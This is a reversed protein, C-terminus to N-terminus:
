RAAKGSNTPLRKPTLITYQSLREERLGSRCGMAGSERQKGPAKPHCKDTFNFEKKAKIQAQVMAQLRRTYYDATKGIYFVL